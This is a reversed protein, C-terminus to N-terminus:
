AETARMPRSVITRFGLSSYPREQRPAIWGAWSKELSCFRLEFGLERMVASHFAYSREFNTIGVHVHSFM